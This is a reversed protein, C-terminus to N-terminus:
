DSFKGGYNNYYNPRYNYYPQQPYYYYPNPRRYNGYYNGYYGGNYYPNYYQNHYSSSYFPRYAGFGYYHSADTKLDDNDTANTNNIMEANLNQAATPDKVDQISESLPISAPFQTQQVAFEIDVYNYKTM